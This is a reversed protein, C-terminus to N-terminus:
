QSIYPSPPPTMNRLANQDNAADVSPVPDPLSCLNFHIIYSENCKVQWIMSEELAAQWTTIGLIRWLM